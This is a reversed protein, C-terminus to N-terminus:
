KTRFTVKDGRVTGSTNQAVLRFYYNTKGVLGSINEAVTKNGTSVGLTKQPTTRLLVSGLLSDTSYEFWYTVEEGNPNVTGNLSATSTGVATASNTNVTPLAPGATKFNLIAGNVTGFQNQANLRFYYTTSPTLDSLSISVPVKTSGDSASQFATVRGLDASTGFEFWYQTAASNPNVEGNLNSTTRSVGGAALTKTTPASGVPAPNGHTTQFSYQAGSVRGFQNEATLRFYYTTDKALGTIYGPASISVFGGGLTQKPTTFTNSMNSSLSYEYWYSTFAGNPTVRGNVVATTDSPTVGVNTIVVPLGAKQVVPTPTPTVPTSPTPTVPTGDSPTTSDKTAFFIIGGIVVVAVVAGVIAKTGNM